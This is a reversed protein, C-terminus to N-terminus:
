IIRRNKSRSETILLFCVLKLNSNKSYDTITLEHNSNISYKIDNKEYITPVNNKM